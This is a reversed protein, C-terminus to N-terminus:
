PSIRDRKISDGARNWAALAGLMVFVWAALGLRQMPYDVLAHVFVAPVGLGWLSRLAPRISWVAVSLLMLLFPAGGEALWEAWDNHAHNVRLGLDFVAYAPYATPFTGLGFGAWPREKGMEVVSFLMERRHVYPDPQEFKKRLTEWGAAASLLAAFVGILAFTGFMRRAPLLGRSVALIMVALMEATALIIGARSGSAVVSAYLGGSALAYLVTRHRNQLANVLAIPLLLEVFAAFNNHYVFPGIVKGTYGSPFIWFVAGNSSYLQVVSIVSIAFGFLLLSRLFWRHVEPSEFTQSALLVLVSAATWYLLAELTDHHYVTIGLSLQLLCFLVAGLFAALPLSFHIPQSRLLFLAAWVAGVLYIGTQLVSLAWRDRVWLTLVAFFLLAALSIATGRALRLAKVPSSTTGNADRCCDRQSERPM